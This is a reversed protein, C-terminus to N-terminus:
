IMLQAVRNKGSLADIFLALISGGFTIITLCKMAKM